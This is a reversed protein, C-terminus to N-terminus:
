NDTPTKEAHDIVLVDVAQKRDEIKLGPEEQMATMAAGMEGMRDQQNAADLSALNFRFDYRGKLGTADVLPRGFMKSFMTAFEDLSFRQFVVSDKDQVREPPGETTSESFKPGGKALTLAFVPMERKEFHARVGMREELLTKLMLFLEQDGVPTAAKAVIDLRVDHIWDPGVVQAPRQYAYMICGFLVMNRITLSGPSTQLSLGPSSSSGADALRLSAVEFAPRPVPAIAAPSQALCNFGSFVLFLAVTKMDM